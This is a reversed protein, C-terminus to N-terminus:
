YHITINPVLGKAIADVVMEAVESSIGAAILGDRSERNTKAKHAKNRERAEAERQAQQAEEAVRLREAEIAALKDAEAKKAAAVRAAEARQESAIRAAEAAQARDEAQQREREVRLREAEAKKAADEARKQAEREAAERAERAIREEREKRDREAAEARLRALEAQEAEHKERKAIAEQIQASATKVALEGRSRFEEWNWQGLALIENLRDQMVEIPLSQWNQLSYSGGNLTETIHSEHAAIREKDAEEWDTLPKRVELQLAELENWIRRGEADISALRKKEDAVLNKRQGDIFTKSKAVKFALSAIAKRNPETSIDLKSAQQRVEDKIASLLPDIAGPRFIEVATM